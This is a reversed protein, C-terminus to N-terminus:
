EKIKKALDEDSLEALKDKQSEELQNLFKLYSVLAISRDRELRQESSETLLNITERRLVEMLRDKLQEQDVEAKSASEIITSKAVVRPPKANVERGM